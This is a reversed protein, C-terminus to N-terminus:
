KGNKWGGYYRAYNVYLAKGQGSQKNNVWDGM